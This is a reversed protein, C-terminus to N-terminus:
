KLNVEGNVPINFTPGVNQNRPGGELPPHTVVLPNVLPTVLPNAASARLNAQRLEEQGRAMDQITEMPKGMRTRMTLMDERMVVQNKELQDILLRQNNHTLIIPLTKM